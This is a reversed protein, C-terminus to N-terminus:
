LLHSPSLPQTNDPKLSPKPQPKDTYVDISFNLPGMLLFVWGYCGPQVRCVPKTKQMILMSWNRLRQLCFSVSSSHLCFSVSHSYFLPYLLIFTSLFICFSQLVFSVSSHLCFSVSNCYFLLVLLIYVSLYLIVTFGFICFFSYYFYVSSHSYISSLSSHNYM